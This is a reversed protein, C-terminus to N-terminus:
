VAYPGAASRGRGESTGGRSQVFLWDRAAKPSAASAEGLSNDPAAGSGAEPGGLGDESEEQFLPPGQSIDPLNVLSAAQTILESETASGLPESAPEKAVAV